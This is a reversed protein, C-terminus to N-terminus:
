RDIRGDGNGLSSSGDRSAQYLRMAQMRNRVALKQLIHTIHNTVTKENLELVNAIEKNSLGRSLQDLVEHERATLKALGKNGPLPPRNEPAPAFLRAALHPPIYREGRFVSQIIRVLEPGPTTKLVYGHAGAHLSATIDQDRESITLMIIKLSSWYKAIMSAAELGGGPIRIDLLMVGWVLTQALLMAESASGAEGVLDFLRSGTLVHALGARFLPHDDVIGIRIPPAGDIERHRSM